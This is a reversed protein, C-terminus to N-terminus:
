RPSPRQKRQPGAAVAEAASAVPGLVREIGPSAFRGDPDLRARVSAFWDWEPYRGRLTAATQFHRKGWHPRGGLEDMVEEVAGFFAYAPIGEFLHVAM